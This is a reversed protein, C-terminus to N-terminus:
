GPPTITLPISRSSRTARRHNYYKLLEERIDATFSALLLPQFAPFLFAIYQFLRLAVVLTQPWKRVIGSNYYFQSYIVLILFPTMSLLYVLLLILAQRIGKARKEYKTGRNIEVSISHSIHRIRQIAHNTIYLVRVYAVTSFTLVILSFIALLISLITLLKYSIQNCTIATFRRSASGVEFYIQFGIPISLTTFWVLVLLITINRSTLIRSSRFPYCVQTYIELIRIMLHINLSFFIAQGIRSLIGCRYDRPWIQLGNTYMVAFRPLIYCSAFIIGAILTSCVIANKCQKLKNHTLIFILLSANTFITILGSILYESSIIIEAIFHILDVNTHYKDIVAFTLLM